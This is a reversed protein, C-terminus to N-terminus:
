KILVIKRSQVFGATRMRVFYVGSTALQGRNDRGDWLVLKSGAMQPGQVLTRLLRGGVDFIQVTVDADDPLDYHITTSPNFPNPVNQHLAAARPVSVANVEDVSAVEAELAMLNNALAVIESEILARSYIRVDDIDGAFPDSGAGLPQDGIAAAVAANVDIVGTKPLSVLLTGNGYIRMENQDYTCAVHYWQDIELEGPASFLTSTVGGARLRFRLATNSYTSIMWYHAQEVSSTTKSILRSSGLFQSPRIWMAITMGSTSSIDMSGIDVVDDTGDFELAGGVRGGTPRWVPGGFLTGNQGGVVDSALPGSTEDFPWHAVLGGTLDTVYLTFTGSGGREIGDSVIFSFRDTFTTSGGHVYSLRSEDVDDQTFTGGGPVPTGNVRLEGASPGETITYIVSAPGNDPDTTRLLTADIVLTGGQNQVIAQHSRDQEHLAAEGSDRSASLVDVDGDSDMDIYFLGYAGPANADIALKTFGGFGDNMYRAVTDDDVSNALVDINGDGDLDVALVTRAGAANSDLIQMTFAGSGNNLYLAITNDLQSASLVDVDGDGDIDVPTAYYAGDVTGDIIHKVFNENGDNEHWAVEDRHFAASVVDLDGDGDIDAFEARKAGTATQDINHHAFNEGGLNEYWDVSSGDQNTSLLDIDGDEDLDVTVVSHAGNAATDVDRRTFAGNGDNEYWVITDALYGCALIDIDGDLDVDGVGIPYAGRLDGDLLHEVFAGAGNSEYWFISNGLYDTGVVDIDNDGDFDAAAVGHTEDLGVGIVQKPFVITGTVMYPATNETGVSITVTAVNSTLLSDTATYTFSDTGNFDIAPTYAFSGDGNLALIGSSVDGVLVAEIADMDPDNDNALVGNLASVVLSENPNTQYGDNIAIPADEEASVTLTVTALNSNSAGDNARYTFSDPGNFNANPTYVFSGDGSLALVGNSVDGVLVASLGDFDPDSDNDLVGNAANV